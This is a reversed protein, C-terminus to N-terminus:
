GQGSSAGNKHYYTDAKGTAANFIDIGSSGILILVVSEGAAMLLFVM